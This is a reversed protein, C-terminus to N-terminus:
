VVSKRGLLRGSWIGTSGLRIWTGTGDRSIMIHASQHSQCRLYLRGPTYIGNLKLKTRRWDNKNCWTKTMRYLFWQLFIFFVGVWPPSMLIIGVISLGFVLKLNKQSTRVAYHINLYWDSMPLWARYMCPYVIGYMMVYMSLYIGYM